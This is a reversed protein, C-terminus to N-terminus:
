SMAKGCNGCFKMSIERSAGCSRCRSTNTHAVEGKDREIALLVAALEKQLALKSTQYDDDSLKGTLLEFQLDRLSEYIASKRSDLHRTASGMEPRPIDKRRVFFVFLLPVTAILVCAETIM